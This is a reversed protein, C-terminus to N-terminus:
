SDAKCHLPCRNLGLDMFIGCAQSFRLGPAVVILERAAVGSARVMSGGIGLFPWRAGSGRRHGCWAKQSYSRERLGFSPNGGVNWFILNSTPLRPNRSILPLIASLSPVAELRILSWPEVLRRTACRQGRTPSGSGAQSAGKKGEEEKERSVVRPTLWIICICAVSHFLLHIFILIESFSLLFGIEPLLVVRHLRHQPCTLTSFACRPQLHPQPNSPFRRERKCLFHVPPAPAGLSAHVSSM